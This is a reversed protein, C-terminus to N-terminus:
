LTHRWDYKCPWSSIEPETTPLAPPEQNPGALMLLGTDAIIMQRGPGELFPGLFIFSAPSLSSQHLKNSNRTLDLPCCLRLVPSHPSQIFKILLPPFFPGWCLGWARTLTLICASALGRFPSGQWSRSMLSKEGRAWCLVPRSGSLSGPMSSLASGREVAGHATQWCGLVERQGWWGLFSCSGRIPSHSRNKSTVWVAAMWQTDTGYWAM